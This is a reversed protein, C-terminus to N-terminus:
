EVEGERTLGRRMWRSPLRVGLSRTCETRPAGPARVSARDYADSDGSERESILVLEVRVYRTGECGSTRARGQEVWMRRAPVIDQVTTKM